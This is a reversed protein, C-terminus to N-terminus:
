MQLLVELARASLPVRHEKGAKMRAAPVTWIGAEIDLESWTAGRVEGSRAATLIAFELARAGSGEIKRLAAVFEAMRQWPLAAHHSEKSVKSPAPLLTDLHSKWRAPNDGTRFKRTTAWALVCEIR